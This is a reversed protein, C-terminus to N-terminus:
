MLVRIKGSKRLDEVLEVALDEVGEVVLLAPSLRLRLLVESTAGCVLPRDTPPVTCSSSSCSGGKGCSGVVVGAVSLWNSSKFDVSSVVSSVVCGVGGSLEMGFTVKSSGVGSADRRGLPSM